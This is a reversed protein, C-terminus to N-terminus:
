PPWSDEDSASLEVTLGAPDKVPYSWYGVWRPETFWAPTGAAMLSRVTRHFAGREMEIGFSPAPSDGGQWGLQASWGEVPLADSHLALTLQLTGIRYGITGDEVSGYFEDLGLLDSYFSRAAALNNTHLYLFTRISLDYRDRWRVKWVRLTSAVNRSVRRLLWRLSDPEDNGIM